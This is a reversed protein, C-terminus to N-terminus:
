NKTRSKLYQAHHAMDPLMTADNIDLSNLERMIEKKNKVFFRVMGPTRSSLMCNKIYEPDLGCIIFSGAQAQIRDNTRGMKVHFCKVLDFINIHDKFAPIERRVTSLIYRYSSIGLVYEDRLEKQSQIVNKSTNKNFTPNVAKWVLDCIEADNAIRKGNLFPYAKSLRQLEDASFYYKNGNVDAHAHVCYNILEVMATYEQPKSGWKIDVLHKLTVIVRLLREKNEYKLKALAALVLVVSSDYSKGDHIYAIDRGYADTQSPMDSQDGKQKELVGDYYVVIEGLDSQVKDGTYITNSTMYLAVLPSSTVDLMRTPLEYHQLMGLRDLYPRKELENYFQSKMDRYWRDEERKNIDRFISPVDPYITRGVGRYYGFTEGSKYLAFTREIEHIASDTLKSKKRQSLITAIEGIIACDQSVARYGALATKSHVFVYNEMKVANRLHEIYSNVITGNVPAGKQCLDYQLLAIIHEALSILRIFEICNIYETVNSITVSNTVGVVKDNFLTLRLEVQGSGKPRELRVWTEGKEDFYSVSSYSCIYTKGIKKSRHKTKLRSKKKLVFDFQDENEIRVQNTGAVANYANTYDKVRCIVYLGDLREYAFVLKM